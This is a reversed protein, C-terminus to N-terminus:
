PRFSRDGLLYPANYILARSTLEALMGAFGGHEHNGVVLLQAGSGYRILARAPRDRMVVPHVQIDPYKAQWGTLRQAILRLEGVEVQGWDVTFRSASYTSEIMYDRWCMVTTLPCSRM